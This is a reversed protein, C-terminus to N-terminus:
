GEIPGPVGYMACHVTMGWDDFGDLGYNYRVISASVPASAVLRTAYPQNFPVQEFNSWVWVREASITFHRTEPELNRYLLTMAVDVDQAGPNLIHVYELENYPYPAKSLDGDYTRKWDLWLCDPFHWETHLKTGHFNTCGGRFRLRKAIIRVGDIFNLMLPTTSHVRAGWFGCDTFVEPALGPMVVLANTEPKVSIPPLTQPDRDTFYVTMVAESPEPTPNYLVLEGFGNRPDEANAKHTFGSSIYNVYSEM